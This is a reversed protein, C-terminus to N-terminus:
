RPFSFGGQAAMETSARWRLPSATAAHVRHLEAYDHAIGARELPSPKGPTSSHLTHCQAKLTGLPLMSSTTPVELGSLDMIGLEEDFEALMANDFSPISDPPTSQTIGHMAKFKELLQVDDAATQEGGVIERAKARLADDSPCSGKAMESKVYENLGNELERSCFVIAPKQWREPMSELFKAATTAKINYIKQEMQVPVDAVYPTLTAQPCLYPPAFGSGGSDVQWSCVASPLGPGEKSAALGM